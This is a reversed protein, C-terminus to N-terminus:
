PIYEWLERLRKRKRMLMITLEKSQLELDQEVLRERQGLLLWLSYTNTLVLVFAILIVVHYYSM